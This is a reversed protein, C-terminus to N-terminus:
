EEAEAEDAGRRLPALARRVDGPSFGQRVLASMLRRYDAPTRLAGGAAKLRRKVARDLLTSEDVDAFVVDVAHRATAADIGISRLRLLVRDRGRGRSSAEIRARSIAVREDNVAGTHRLRALAEAIVDDPCGRRRLRLTLEASTLDRGALWRLALTCAGRATPVDRDPADDEHRQRM